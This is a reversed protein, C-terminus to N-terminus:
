DRKKEQRDRETEKERVREKARERACGCVCGCGVDCVHVECEDCRLGLFSPHFGSHKGHQKESSVRFDAGTAMTCRVAAYETERLKNKKKKRGEKPAGCM